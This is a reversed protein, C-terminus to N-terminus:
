LLWLSDFVEEASVPSAFFQKRPNVGATVVSNFTSLDFIAIQDAGKAAKMAEDKDKFNKSVDLYVRGDEPNHWAGFYYGAQSLEDAHDEQYQRIHDATLDKAAFDRETNKNMSVMYGTTPGDGIHDHISFGGDPENIADLLPRIKEHAKPREKLGVGGGGTWKGSEDRAESEDYDATRSTKDGGEDDDDDETDLFGQLIDFAHQHDDKPLYHFQVKSKESAQRYFIDDTARDIM